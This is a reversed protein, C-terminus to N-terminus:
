VGSGTSKWFGGAEALKWTLLCFNQCCRNIIYWMVWFRPRLHFMNIPVQDCCLANEMQMIGYKGFEGNEQSKPSYLATQAITWDRYKLQWFIKETSHPVGKPFAGAAKNLRVEGWRVELEWQHQQQWGHRIADGWAIPPKGFVCSPSKFWGDQNARIRVPCFTPAFFWVAPSGTPLLSMVNIKDVGFKQPKSSSDGSGSIGQKHSIELHSLLDNNSNQFKWDRWRM